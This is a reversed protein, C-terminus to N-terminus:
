KVVKQLADILDQLGSYADRNMTLVTCKDVTVHVFYKSKIVEIDGIVAVSKEKNAKM